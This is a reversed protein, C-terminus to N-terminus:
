KSIRRIHVLCEVRRKFFNDAGCTKVQQQIIVLSVRRYADGCLISLKLCLETVFRSDADDEK